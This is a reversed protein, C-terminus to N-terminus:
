IAPWTTIDGYYFPLKAADHGMALVTVNMADLHSIERDWVFPGASIVLAKKIYLWPKDANNALVDTQPRIILAKYASDPLLHGPKYAGSAYSHVGHSNNLGAWIWTLLTQSYDTIRLVFTCNAGTIRANRPVTGFKDAGFVELSKELSVIQGQQVLGLETGSTNNYVTPDLYIKGSIPYKGTNYAM